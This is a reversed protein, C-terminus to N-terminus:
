EYFNTAETEEVPSTLQDSTMSVKFRADAAKEAKVVIRWSVEKGPAISAVPAFSFSRQASAASPGRTSGTSSLFRVSDPLTVAIKVGTAPATGQNTVTILYTEDEGVVIPDELDVVELLIAPIGRVETKAMASADNACYAKARARNQFNGLESTAVRVTVQRSQGANLNGFEWRVRDKAFVGKDSASKFKTGKAIVEELVTDRAIGDGVNKITITYSLDRGAFTKEPVVYAIELIPKRVITAVPGSDATLGSLSKAYATHEFKGTRGPIAEVTFKESMGAELTGVEKTFKSRGEATLGEPLTAEVVVNRASGTGANTVVYEYVMGDCQLVEAPGSAVLSLRPEVM